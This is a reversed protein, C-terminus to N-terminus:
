MDLERSRGAALVPSRALLRFTRTDYQYRESASEVTLVRRQADLTIASVGQRRNEHLRTIETIGSRVNLVRVDGTIANADFILAREADVVQLRHGPTGTELGSLQARMAIGLWTAAAILACGIILGLLGLAPSAPQLRVASDIYRHPQRPAM